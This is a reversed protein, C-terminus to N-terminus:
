RSPRTTSRTTSPFRIWFSHPVFDPHPDYLRSARLEDPPHLIITTVVGTDENVSQTWWPISGTDLSTLLFYKIYREGLLLEIDFGSKVLAQDFM